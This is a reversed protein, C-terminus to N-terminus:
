YELSELIEEIDFERNEDAIVVAFECRESDREPEYSVFEANYGTREVMEEMTDRVEDMAIDAIYPIYYEDYWKDEDEEINTESDAYERAADLEDDDYGYYFRLVLLGDKSGIEEVEEFVPYQKFMEMVSNRDM